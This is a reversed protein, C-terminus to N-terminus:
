RMHDLMAGLVPDMQASTLMSGGDLVVNLGTLYSARDSLLFAILESVEGPEGVRGLPTGAEIVQRAAPDSALVDNLPTHVFGPSVCNVRIDPALELAAAASLAGVAVQLTHVSNVDSLGM